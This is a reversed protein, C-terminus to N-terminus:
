KNLGDSVVTFIIKENTVQHVKFVTDRFRIQDVDSEYVVDQYFAPRALNDNTYERYSISISKGNTGGYILEYNIFGSSMDIEEREQEMFKLDSPTIQFDYIMIINGNLVKSHVTGDPNILAGFQQGLNGVPLNVVTFDKQSYRTNGRILYDTNKDGSISVVGGNISFDNSARMVKANFKKVNYDKVKVIPKGIYASKKEGIEYNKDFVRETKIHSNSNPQINQTCGTTVLLILLGAGLAIIKRM